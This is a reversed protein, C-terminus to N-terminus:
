QAAAHAGISAHGLVNEHIGDDQSQTASNYVAPITADIPIINLGDGTLEAVMALWAAHYLDTTPADMNGTQEGPANYITSLSYVVPTEGAGVAATYFGLCVDGAPDVCTYVVKHTANTSPVRILNALITQNVPFGSIGPFVMAQSFITIGTDPDVAKVGDVSVTFTASSNYRRAAAFYITSGTVTCTMTAGATSTYSAASNPDGDVWTGTKVCGTGAARTKDAEPIALWATQAEICGRAYAIYAQGYQVQDNRFHGYINKSAADVKVDWLSQSTGAYSLDACNSAGYAQNNLTWGNIVAMVAPWAAEPHCTLNSCGLLGYGQTQSNGWANVIQPPVSPARTPVFGSCGTLILTSFVMGYKLYEGELKERSRLGSFRRPLFSQKPKTFDPAM